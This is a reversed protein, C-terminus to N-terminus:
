SAIIYVKLKDLVVLQGKESINTPIEPNCLKHQVRQPLLSLDEPQM